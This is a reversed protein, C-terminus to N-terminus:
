ENGADDDAEADEVVRMICLDPALKALRVLHQSPLVRRYRIRRHDIRFFGGRDENDARAAAAPNVSQVPDPAFERVMKAIEDEHISPRNIGLTVAAGLFELLHPALRLLCKSVEYVETVVAAECRFGINGEADIRDLLQRGKGLLNALIERVADEEGALKNELVIVPIDALKVALRREHHQTTEVGAVHGHDNQRHFKLARVPAKIAAHKVGDGSSSRLCCGWPSSSADRGTRDAQAAGAM